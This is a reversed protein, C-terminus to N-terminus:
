KKNKNPVPPYKLDAAKEADPAEGTIGLDVLEAQSLDVSTSLYRTSANKKVPAGTKVNQLGVSFSLSNMMALVHKWVQAQDSGQSFDEMKDIEMFRSFTDMLRKQYRDGGDPHKAAVAAALKISKIVDAELASEVTDPTACIQPNVTRSVLARVMEPGYCYGFLKWIVAHDTKAINQINPGIVQHLVYMKNDLKDTVDFFLEEYARVTKRTIGAEIALEDIEVRALILAELEDRFLSASDKYIEYATFIDGYLVILDQNRLPDPNRALARQFAVARNIWFSGNESDLEISSEPQTNNLIHTARDWKWNPIRDWAFCYNKAM